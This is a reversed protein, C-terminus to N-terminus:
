KHGFCTFRWIIRLGLLAVVQEHYRGKVGKGNEFFGGHWSHAQFAWYLFDYM